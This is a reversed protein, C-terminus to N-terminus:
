LTANFAANQFDRVLGELVTAGGPLKHLLLEHPGVGFLAYRRAIVDFEARTHRNAHVVFHRVRRLDDYPASAIGLKIQQQNALQLRDIRKSTWNPDEWRLGPGVIARAKIAGPIDSRHRVNPARSVVQGGLTM